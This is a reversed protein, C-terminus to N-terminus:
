NNSPQFVFGSTDKRAKGKPTLGVFVGRKRKPDLFRLDGHLEDGDIVDAHYIKSPWDERKGGICIAVNYGANIARKCSSWNYPTGDYSFTLHYNSHRKSFLRKLSKTYDYFQLDPCADILWGFDEDTTGNPRVCPTMSKRAARNRLADVEAVAKAKYADPELLKFVTRKGRAIQTSSFAGRGATNLCIGKCNGAWLCANYGDIGAARLQEAFTAHEYVERHPLAYQIATMYNHKEGKVTKADSGITFLYNPEEINNM